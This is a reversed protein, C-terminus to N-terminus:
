FGVAARREALQPRSSSVSKADIYDAAVEALISLALTAPTRTSPLLGIPGALRGISAPSYGAERLFATRAAATRRGGIAGVYFAPSALAWPLLGREWEHDHFLLIIASWRDVVINLPATGLGYGEGAAYIEAEAGAARGLRAMAATESGAGFILLRLAPRYRRVFPTRGARDHTLVAEERADLRALARRTAVVDPYPECLIDIGAGCPLRFDLFPSGSGYRLTQAKGSARCSVLQRALEAELCGDALTGAMSGDAAVALHSGLARSYSGEIGVITCLGAQGEAVKRLAAIDDDDVM